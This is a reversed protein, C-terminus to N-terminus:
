LSADGSRVNNSKRAVRDFGTPGLRSLPETRLVLARRRRLRRASLVLWLVLGARLSSRNITAEDWKEAANLKSPEPV